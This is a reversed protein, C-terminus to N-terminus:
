DPLNPWKKRPTDLDGFRRGIDADTLQAGESGQVLITSDGTRVVFTGDYFVEVIEGPLSGPWSLRTDFPICRWLFVKRAADNDLFTFAGPFPKTLARVLNCIAISTDTWYILGDEPSRKPYYSAGDKPQPTLVANGALLEPMAKACLHIMSTVNKQHLTHCDDYPTIDFTQVDVVPGNDVGPKYQFLHTYFIDKNQILSWNLPSRGRGHPLPRSSGHMGFAGVSLSELWWEPILRQWGMVLLMDLNLGLLTQRDEESNLTYKHAITYPVGVKKFLPRLDYYGAVKQEVGKEPCLTVCHDITIGHRRLGLILDGTTHKCGVVGVRKNTGAIKNRARLEQRRYSDPWGVVGVRKNTNAM